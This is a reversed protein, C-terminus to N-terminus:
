KDKANTIVLSSKVEFEATKYLKFKGDEWTITFCTITNGDPPTVEFSDRSRDVSVSKYGIDALLQAAEALTVKSM